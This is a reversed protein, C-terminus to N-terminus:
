AKNNWSFYFGLVFFKHPTHLLHQSQDWVHWFRNTFNQAPPKQSSSAGHDPLGASTSLSWLSINLIIIGHPLWGVYEFYWFWSKGCLVTSLFRGALAPFIAKIGPGPLSGMLWLKQAQARSGWSNLRPAVVVSAWAGLDQTRCCSFGCFCFAQMGCHLVAEM